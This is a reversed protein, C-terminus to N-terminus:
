KRRSIDCSFDVQDFQCNSLKINSLSKRKCFISMQFLLTCQLSMTLMLKCDVFDNM